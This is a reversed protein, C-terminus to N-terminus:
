QEYMLGTEVAIDKLTEHRGLGHACGPPLQCIQHGSSLWRHTDVALQFRLAKKSLGTLHWTTNRYQM